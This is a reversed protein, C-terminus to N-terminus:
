GGAQVKAWTDRLGVTRNFVLRDHGAGSDLCFYGQGSQVQFVCRNPGRKITNNDIQFCRCSLKSSGPVRDKGQGISGSPIDHGVEPFGFERRNFGPLRNLQVDQGIRGPLETALDLRNTITNKGIIAAAIGTTQRM